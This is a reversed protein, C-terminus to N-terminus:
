KCGAAKLWTCIIPDGGLGFWWGSCAGCVHVSAHPMGVICSVTAGLAYWVMGYICSEMCNPEVHVRPV